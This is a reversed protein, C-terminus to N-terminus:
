VNKRGEKEIGTKVHCLNDGMRRACKIREFSLRNISKTAESRGALGKWASRNLRIPFTKCGEKLAKKTSHFKIYYLFTKFGKLLILSRKV